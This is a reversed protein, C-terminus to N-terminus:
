SLYKTQINNYFQSDWKQVNLFLCWEPAVRRYYENLTDSVISKLRFMVLCTSICTAHRVPLMFLLVHNLLRVTHWSLQNTIFLVM